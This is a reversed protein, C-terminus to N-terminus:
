KWEPWTSFDYAVHYRDPPCIHLTEPREAGLPVSHFPRMGDFYVDLRGNTETWVYRRTAEFRAGATELYGTEDQVLRMGSKSFLCKGTFRDTTGDKHRIDRDLRWAGAFSWLSTPGARAAHQQTTGM